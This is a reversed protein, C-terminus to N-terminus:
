QHNFQVIEVVYGDPDKIFLQLAGDPRPKIDKVIIIENAKLCERFKSLDEVLFAFHLARSGSQVIPKMHVDEILHLSLGNGISFWAGNFDFAPREISSLGLLIKYFDMSVQLDKVSIAYHDFEVIQNNEM